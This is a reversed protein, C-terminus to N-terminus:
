KVVLYDRAPITLGNEDSYETYTYNVYVKTGNEYTTCRIGNDLIKHATIEQNFLGGMEKQYRSYIELMRDKWGAFDAGFYQTYLTKQLKGSEARMLTFSLGAGYEASQLLVEQYNQALNLAEGTYNVHSHLAIQYFPVPQDLITYLSGYLDMNTIFDAYGISYDNGRNVMINMGSNDIKELEDIQIKKSAERSVVGKKAYDASLECGVDQFSVNANYKNAFKYLNDMMNDVLKAKLLYYPKVGEWTVQGFWITSYEYLEAKVNSAFRASDSFVSFGDFAKNQMAYQTIGNLYLDIDNDNAFAILKKLAKTGGLKSIVKVKNLMTQKVGGNMWGSLKVSMNKMGADQLEQLMDIAETFTTLKWPRSVPVGLIQEKKDVAGVVEIAVPTDASVVDEWADGNKEELYKGYEKAMDVYDDSGVFHYTQVLNENPLKKEYVFMKGLYQGAVDYQERHCVIYSASTANYSNLKGAVDAQIGAYAAGEDITCVFSNGNKAIGFANFVARTEHVVSDLDHRRAMDWGYMNAFYAPQSIKGNNFNIMAGGGEPVLLYGEDDAGGAGFYPLMAIQFIPYETRYEIENLPVTVKMENDTLTYVVKVNYIPTDDTSVRMDNEKDELYEEYTYGVLEFTREIKQMIYKKTDDNTLTVYCPGDELMPFNEVYTDKKKVDGGKLNDLDILKFYEKLERVDFYDKPNDVTPLLETLTEMFAEYREQTSVAPFAYEPKVNGISYHVTISDDTHEIDYIQNLISYQYNNLPTDVGNINSYTVIMTSQMNNKENDLARPDDAAGEPNSYWVAGTDKVEVRFQTTNPDMVMKLKSSEVVIEQGDGEYSTQRVIEEVEKEPKLIFIAAVAAGILALIVLPAILSKLASKMKKQREAKRVSKEKKM